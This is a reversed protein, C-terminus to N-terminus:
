WNEAIGLYHPADGKLWLNMSEFLGAEYSNILVSIAYGLAYTVIRTFLLWLLITWIPHRYSRRSRRKGLPEANLAPTDATGCLTQVFAPLFRVGCAAFLICLLLSSLASAMDLGPTTFMWIGYVLGLVALCICILAKTIRM